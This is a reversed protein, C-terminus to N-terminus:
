GLILSAVVQESPSGETVHMKLGDRKLVDLLLSLEEQKKMLLAM